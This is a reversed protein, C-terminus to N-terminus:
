FLWLDKLNLDKDVLMVWAIAVTIPSLVLLFRLDILSSFDFM